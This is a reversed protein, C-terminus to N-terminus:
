AALVALRRILAPMRGDEFAEALAGESFRDGRIIATAVRQVDALSLGAMAEPAAFVLDRGGAAMWDSWEFPVVLGHEYAAQVFDLVLPSPAFWPLTIADENLTDGGKWDGFPEDLRSAFAALAALGAPEVHGLEPGTM